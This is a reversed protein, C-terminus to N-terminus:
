GSLRFYLLRKFLIVADTCFSEILHAFFSRQIEFLGRVFFDGLAILFGTDDFKDILDYPFSIFIAGRINMKLRGFVFQANTVANVSNQVM